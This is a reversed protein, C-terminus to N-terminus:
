GLCFSVNIGRNYHSGLGYAGREAETLVLATHGTLNKFLIKTKPQEWMKKGTYKKLVGSWFIVSVFSYMKHFMADDVIWICKFGLVCSCLWLVCSVILFLLFFISVM